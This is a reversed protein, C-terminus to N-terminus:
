PTLRNLVRETLSRLETERATSQNHCSEAMLQVAASAKDRDKLFMWVILANVILGPVEEAAVMIAAWIDPPASGPTVVQSQAHATVVLALPVFLVSGVM